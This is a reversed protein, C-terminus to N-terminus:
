KSVISSTEPKLQCSQEHGLATALLENISVDAELEFNSSM